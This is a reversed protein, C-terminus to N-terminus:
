KSLYEEVAKKYQDVRAGVIPEGIITLDSAVLFTTPVFQISAFFETFDDGAILNPFDAGAQQLIKRADEAAMSNELRADSVIGIIQADPGMEKSWQALEPMESICPGCFSGWVNVVTVKANKFIASTVNNGNLDRTKFEPFSTPMDAAAPSESKEEVKVEILKINDIGGTVYDFCQSYTQADEEDIASEDKETIDYLYTWENKTGLTKMRPLFQMNPPYNGSDQYSQLEETKILMISIINRYFKSLQDTFAKRLEETIGSQMKPSFESILAQAKDQNIFSIVVMPYPSDEVGLSQIELGKDKMEQSIPLVLGCDSITIVDKSCSVLSFVLLGALLGAFCKKNM